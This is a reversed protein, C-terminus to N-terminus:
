SLDLLIELTSVRSAADRALRASNDAVFNDDQAFRLVQKESTWWLFEVDCWGGAWLKLNAKWYLESRKPTHSTSKNWSVRPYRASMTRTWCRLPKRFSSPAMISNRM